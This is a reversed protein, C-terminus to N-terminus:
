IIALMTSQKSLKRRFRNASIFLHIQWVNLAMKSNSSGPLSEEKKEYGDEGFLEVMKKIFTVLFLYENRIAEFVAM